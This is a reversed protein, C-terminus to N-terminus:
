SKPPSKVQTSLPEGSSDHSTELSDVRSRRGRQSLYLYLAILPIGAFLGTIAFRQFGPELELTNALLLM